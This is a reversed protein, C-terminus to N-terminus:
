EVEKLLYSIIHELNDWIKILIAKDPIVSGHVHAGLSHASYPHDQGGNIMTRFFKLEPDEFQESKSLLDCVKSFKKNLENPAGGLKKKLYLATLNELFARLLYSTSFCFEKADLKRLEDYVRKLTKDNIKASFSKPIVFDRNDPNPNNRRRDPQVSDSGTEFNSQNGDAKGNNEVPNDTNSYAPNELNKEEDLRTRSIVVEDTLVRAYKRRDNAQSRSTIPSDSRLADTFFRTILVKFEDESLHIKLQRNDSLGLAERVQPTGLFRSITTIGLSKSDKLSIIKNNKAYDILKRSLINPDHRGRQENFRTKQDSDWKTLGAGSQQGSHRLEKWTEFEEQNECVIARVKKIITQAEKNLYRFFRKDSENPAKEPDKILKLACIRRNGEAVIFKRPNTPHKVLALIEIPSLGGRKVIDSALKKVKEKSVLQRIIEPESEIPDHRPNKPDLYINQISIERDQYAM